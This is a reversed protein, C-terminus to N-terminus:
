VEESPDQIELHIRWGEFSMLMRGFQEWNVERGDIILLPMYDSSELDCTLRGRVTTGSIALGLEGEVLHVVALDHRMRELLRTMLAFPDADAVGHVQFEYGEQEDARVELAELTLMTGLLRLIFHFRHKDGNADPLEMPQFDVHTFRIGSLRAVEENYCRSCLDRYGTEISGFHTVEFAPVGSHCQDCAITSM